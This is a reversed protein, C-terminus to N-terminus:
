RRVVEGGGLSVYARTLAILGATSVVIAVLAPLLRFPGLNELLDLGLFRGALFNPAVVSLVFLIGVPRRAPRTLEASRGMANFPWRRELVAAQEALGVVSGLVFGWASAVVLGFLTLWLLSLQFGILLVLAVGLVVMLTIVLRTLAFRWFCRKRLAAVIWPDAGKGPEPNAAALLIAIQLLASVVVLVLGGIIAAADTAAAPISGAVVTILLEIFLLTRFPPRFSATAGMIALKRLSITPRTEQM